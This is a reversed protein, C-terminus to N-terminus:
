ADDRRKQDADRLAIGEDRERRRRERDEFEADDLREMLASRVDDPLKTWEFPHTEKTAEIFQV